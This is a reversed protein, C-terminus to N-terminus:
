IVKFYNRKQLGYGSNDVYLVVIFLYEIPMFVAPSHALCQYIKEFEM